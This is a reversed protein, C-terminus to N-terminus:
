ANYEGFFQLNVLADLLRCSPPHIMYNTVIITDVQSKGWKMIDECKTFRTSWFSQGGTSKKLLLTFSKPDYVYCDHACCCKIIPCFWNEFKSEEFRKVLDRLEM